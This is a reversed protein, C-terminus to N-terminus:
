RYAAQDAETSAGSRAHEAFFRVMEASADPGQPDTYTGDPKGGSWAHGAGHVTWQEVAATGDAHPFVTKTYRHGGPVELTVAVPPRGAAPTDARVLCEANVIDVTPDTDGHFVILPLSTGIPRAVGDRMAAFASPIDSAAGAALGSHVGVAAFVDPYTAAVLAAMAGGASFGAVCVRGSDVAYAEAVHATIGAILAPEGSGRRRGAPDFWNWYGMPNATRSQEPYAVLFTHQEALDNMGTGAAFDDASQTGGHLMVILPVPQGTYGTPVYLRYSRDDHGYSVDLFRGPAPRGTGPHPPVMSRLGRPLSMGKPLSPMDPRVMSRLGRPLSLGEPLSPIDPRPWDHSGRQGSRLLATAEALRGQRVLRTAEAM